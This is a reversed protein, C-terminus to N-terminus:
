MTVVSLLFEEFDKKVQEVTPHPHKHRNDDYIDACPYKDLIIGSFEMAQKHSIVDCITHWKFNTNKHKGDEFILSGYEESYEIKLKKDLDIEGNFSNKFCDKIKDISVYSQKKTEINMRMVFYGECLLKFRDDTTKSIDFDEDSDEDYEYRFLFDHILESLKKFKLVEHNNIDDCFSTSGDEDPVDTIYQICLKKSTEITINTYCELDEIEFQFSSPQIPCIYYLYKNKM